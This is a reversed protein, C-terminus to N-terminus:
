AVSFLELYGVGSEMALRIVRAVPVSEPELQFLNGADVGAREVIERLKALVDISYQRASIGETGM